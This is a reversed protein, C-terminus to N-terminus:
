PGLVATTAAKHRARVDKVLKEAATLDTALEVPNPVLAHKGKAPDHAETVSHCRKVLRLVEDCESQPIGVLTALRGTQVQTEFRSVVGALIEREVIREITARLRSYVHRMAQVNEANPHPNWASAIDKQEKKLEHLRDLPAKCDWPLGPLCKGPAGDRWELSLVHPAISAQEANALLDNLFVVDHTFVVVQRAKAEKVLRIAIRERHWHDLSSVPDDFVLASQHSAQSLEALFAALAVCRKEGESAIEVVEHQSAGSLRLGFKTEGKKGQTPELRVDLTNLALAKTEDKFRDRFAITVFQATLESNKTTITNTATDKQCDLLKAIKRHREIQALAGTKVGALWERGELEAREAVLKKRTEPDHASEETKARESLAVAAARISPEPSAAVAAIANWTRTAISSKLVVIAGDVSKVFNEIESRQQAPIGGLDADLKTFEPNLPALKGLSEGAEALRKAAESALQQSKDKCFADFEKFRNVALPDLQQQCLVCQASEGTFPFAFDQYVNSESFQRAADWMVRWLETGTGSLYSSAFSNSAFVKAAEATKVAQEILTRIKEVKEATLAATTVAVNAAFTEIRAAAARTEKAKQVPDSKLAERLDNLRQRQASDLGCLADVTAPKTSASLGRVLAGVATEADYSWNDSTSAIASRILDIDNQIRARIADCARALRPLVDLGYPTFSASGDENLYHDACAADFVFVNALRQDPISGDTWTVLEETEGVRIGLVASAKTSSPTAFANARIVPPAGRARCTKKLVRAYGSKGTGNDGYVITLGPAGGFPLNEDSPLRDVNKLSGISAISVSGQSGPASPLHTADIPTAVVAPETGADAGHKARCIRDLDKLDTEGITGQVVIRRLADRQWDPRTGSWKLIEHLPSSITVPTLPQM